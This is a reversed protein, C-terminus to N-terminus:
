SNKARQPYFGFALKQLIKTLLLLYVIIIDGNERVWVLIILDYQILKINSQLKNKMLVDAYNTYINSSLPGFKM